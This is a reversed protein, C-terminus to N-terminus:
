RSAWLDKSKQRLLAKIKSIIYSWAARGVNGVSVVGVIDHEALKTGTYELTRLQIDFVLLHTEDKISVSLLLNFRSKLHKSIQHIVSELPQYPKEFSSYNKSSNLVLTLLIEHYTPVCIWVMTVTSIEKTKEQHNILSNSFTLSFIM